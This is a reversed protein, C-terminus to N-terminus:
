SEEIKTSIKVSLYWETNATANLAIERVEAIKSGTFATREEYLLQVMRNAELCCVRDCPIKGNDRDFFSSGFFLLSGVCSCGVYYM